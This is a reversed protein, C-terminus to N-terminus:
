PEFELLKLANRRSNSPTAAAHVNRHVLPSRCPLPTALRGLPSVHPVPLGQACEQGPRCHHLHLCARPWLRPRLFGQQHDHRRGHRIGHVLHRGGCCEHGHPLRGHPLHRPRRQAGTADPPHPHPLEQQRVSPQLCVHTLGDNAEGDPVPVHQAAVPEHRFLTHM